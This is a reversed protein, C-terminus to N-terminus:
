STKPPCRQFEIDFDLKGFWPHLRDLWWSEVFRDFMSLADEVTAATIIGVQVEPKGGQEHEYDPILTVVTETPGGFAANIYPKAEEIVAAMDPNQRLFEEAKGQEWHAREVQPSDTM